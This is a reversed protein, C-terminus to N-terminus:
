LAAMIDVAKPPCGKVYNKFNKCCSGIGLQDTGTKKGKFGQGICIKDNKNSASSRGSATSRGGATSRGSASSRGGTRHLAFILSAYCVSCAKDEEIDDVYRDSLRLSKQQKLPKQDVNLEVVKTDQSYFEGLGMDRAILLHTIEEPRFGILGACYSDIMVPDRGTIIRNAELPTGGEEFTLDGCISDVVCYHVPLMAALAAIPRHLGLSHFRKMESESICGKLNKLCCTLRTQCHSKLVPVNIFFDADLAEKAIHIDLGMENNRKTVAQANKLDTLIVGYRKELEEFGCIKYAKKTSYGVAASEMIKMNKASIGVDLLYRIIGEVVEPHTTAGDSPPRTVVMNPKIAVSMQPNSALMPKLYNQIDSAALSDYSAKVWDKGYNVTIM